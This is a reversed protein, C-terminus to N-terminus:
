LFKAYFNKFTKKYNGYIVKINPHESSLLANIFEMCEKKTNLERQTTTNDRYEITLITKM